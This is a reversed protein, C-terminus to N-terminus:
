SSPGTNDTPVALCTLTIRSCCACYLLQLLFYLDSALLLLIDATDQVVAPTILPPNSYAWGISCTTCSRYACVLVIINGSDVM